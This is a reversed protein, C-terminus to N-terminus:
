VGFDAISLAQTNIPIQDLRNSGLFEERSHRLLDM